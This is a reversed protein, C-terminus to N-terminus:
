AQTGAEELCYLGTSGDSVSTNNDVDAASGWYWANGFAHVAEDITVINNNLTGSTEQYPGLIFNAPQNTLNYVYDATGASHRIFGVKLLNGERRNRVIHPADSEQGDAEYNICDVSVVGSGSGGSVHFAPGTAGGINLHGYLSDGNDVAVAISNSGSQDSSPYIGLTEFSRAPGTSLDNVVAFSDGADVDAIRIQGHRIEFPGSDPLSIAEGYWGSILIQDFWLQTNNEGTHEIATAQTSPPSNWADPNGSLTFGTYEAYATPAGGSGFLMGSEGAADIVIRTTYPGWGRISVYDPIELGGQNVIEGPPLLVVGGSTTGDSAASCADIADQIPESSAAPDIADSAGLGAGVPVVLGDWATQIAADNTENLLSGTSISDASIADTSQTFTDTDIDQAYITGIRDNEEGLQDIGTIANQASASQAIASPVAMAAGGLGLVKLAQRRSVGANLLGSLSVSGGDESTQEELAEIRAKLAAVDPEGGSSKSM